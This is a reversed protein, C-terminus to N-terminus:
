SYTADDIIAFSPYSCFLPPPYLICVMFIIFYLVGALPATTAAMMTSAPNYTASRQWENWAAGSRCLAQALPYYKLRSVLMAVAAMQNDTAASNMSEQTDHSPSHIVTSKMKRVKFSIYVFALFNFLISAVRTWYYFETTTKSLNSHDVQCYIYPADDDVQHVLTSANFIAFLLPIFGVIFLIYYFNGFIDFSRIQYVVFIVTFSIVNSTYSNGLGGLIDLFHWIICPVYGPCVGLMYNIDYLLQFATMTSILLLYGNWKKMQKIVLLTLITCIFSATAVGFGIWKSTLVM